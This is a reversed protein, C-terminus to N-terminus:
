CVKINYSQLSFAVCVCVYRISSLLQPFDQLHWELDSVMLSCVDSWGHSRVTFIQREEGPLLANEGIFSGQSFLGILEKAEPDVLRVQGYVDAYTLM